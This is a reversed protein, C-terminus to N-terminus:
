QVKLQWAPHVRSARWTPYLGAGVTVVVGVVMTIVVMGADLSILHAVDVGRQSAEVLLLRLGATGAATLALGLLGGVL